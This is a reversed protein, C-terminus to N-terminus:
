NQTPAFKAVCSYLLPFNYERLELTRATKNNPTSLKFDSGSASDVAKAAVSFRYETDADLGSYTISHLINDIGISAGSPVDASSITICYSYKNNEDLFPSCEDFAFKIM